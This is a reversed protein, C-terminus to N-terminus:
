RNENIVELHKYHIYKIEEDFLVGYLLKATPHVEVVIKPGRWHGARSVVLDGLHPPEILQHSSVKM